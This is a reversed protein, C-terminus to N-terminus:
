RIILNHLEDDDDRHYPFHSKLINGTQTIAECLGNCHDGQAIATTLTDILDQWQDQDIKENIGYDGLIWAKKEFVSIFLLIGNAQKTRYLRESFFSKIAEEEVERAMEETSIFYRTLGPYSLIIGYALGFLPTWFFFFFYVNLPDIWLYSSLLHVIAFCLPLSYFFAAIIKAKPYDYSYSVVMPVIEGSTQLEAQQVAQTVRVQEESTLFRQALDKM